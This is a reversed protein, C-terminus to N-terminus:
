QVKKSGFQENYDYGAHYAELEEAGRDFSSGHFQEYEKGKHARILNGGLPISLRKKALTFSEVM